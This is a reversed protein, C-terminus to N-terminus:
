MKRMTTGSASLRLARAAPAVWPVAETRAPYRLRPHRGVPWSLLSFWDRGAYGSIILEYGHGAALTQVAQAVEAYFSSAIRPLWLAVVQTRQMALARAVPNPRYGIREAAELVRQRTEEPVTANKRGNFVYSVTAQSVGSHPLWM